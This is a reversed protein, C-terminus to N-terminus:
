EVTDETAKMAAEGQPSERLLPPLLPPISPLFDVTLLKRILLLSGIGVGATVGAILIKTSTRM